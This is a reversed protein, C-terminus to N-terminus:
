NDLECLEKISEVRLDTNHTEALKEVMPIVIALARTINPAQIYLSGFMFAKNTEVEYVKVKEM